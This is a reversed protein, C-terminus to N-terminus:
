GKAPTRQGNPASTNMLFQQAETIARRDSASQLAQEAIQAVRAQSAELATTLRTIEGNKSGVTQEAAALKTGLSTLESKFDREKLELEHRHDKSLVNKLVAEAKDVAAKLQAPFEAVQRRLDALEQERLKLEAERAAWTRELDAVRISEARKKDEMAQRWADEDAKRRQATEYNYQAAERDRAARMDLDRQRVQKDHAAQEEDWEARAKVSAAEFEATKAEHQALLQDLATAALDIDHISKLDEEGLKIAARVEALRNTAQLLEDQVAALTSSISLQAKTVDKLVEEASIGDVAARVANRRATELERSKDTIVADRSSANEAVLENFDNAVEDTTRTAAKRRTPAKKTAM